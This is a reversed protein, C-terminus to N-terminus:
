KKKAPVKKNKAPSKKAPALCAGVKTGELALLSCFSAAGVKWKGGQRVAEGKRDSLAPKGGIDITYVVAAKHGSVTVKSVKATTVAAFPSSKAQREIVKAFARGDEVLAVKKRAATKGSFFAEWDTVVKARASRASAVHAKATREPRATALTPTAPGLWLGAVATFALVARAPRRTGGSKRM